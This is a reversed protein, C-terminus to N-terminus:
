KFFIEFVNKLISKLEKSTYQHKFEIHNIEKFLKVENELEEFYNDYMDQYSRLATKYFSDSKMQYKRAVNFLTSIFANVKDPTNSFLEFLKFTDIGFMDLPFFQLFDSTLLDIIPQLKKDAKTSVLHDYSTELAKSLLQIKDPKPYKKGKEVEHIYSLSMGTRKALQQYTLDLKQRLYKVKFGFIM